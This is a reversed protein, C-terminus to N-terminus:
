CALRAGARGDLALTLSRLAESSRASRRAYRAVTGSLAETFIKKFCHSGV